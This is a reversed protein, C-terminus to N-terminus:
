HKFTDKAKEKTGRGKGRAELAAGKAATTEDGVAHAVKRVAKGVIQETKAKTKEGASM